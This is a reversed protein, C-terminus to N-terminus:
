KLSKKPLSVHCLLYLHKTRKLFFLIVKDYVAAIIATRIRMGMRFVRHFYQHLLLSQVVATLFLLVAYLYGHWSAEKTDSTFNIM